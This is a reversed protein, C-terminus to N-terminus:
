VYTITCTKIVCSIIKDIDNWKSLGNIWTYMLRAEYNNPFFFSLFKCVHLPTHQAQTPVHPVCGGQLLTGHLCIPPRTPNAVNRYSPDQRDRENLYDVHVRRLDCLPSQVRAVQPQPCKSM